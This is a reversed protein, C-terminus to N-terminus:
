REPPRVLDGGTQFLRDGGFESGLDFHLRMDLRQLRPAQAAAVGGRGADGFQAGREGLKGAIM